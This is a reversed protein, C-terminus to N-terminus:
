SQVTQSMAVFGELIGVSFHVDIVEFKFIRFHHRKKNLEKAVLKRPLNTAAWNSDPEPLYNVAASTPPLPESM